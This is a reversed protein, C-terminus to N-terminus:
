LVDSCACINGISNIHQFACANVLFFGNVKMLVCLLMSCGNQGGFGEFYGVLHLKLWKGSTPMDCVDLLIKPFVCLCVVLGVM